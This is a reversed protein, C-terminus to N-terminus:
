FKVIFLTIVISISRPFWLEETLQDSNFALVLYCHDKWDSFSFMRLVYFSYVLLAWLKIIM